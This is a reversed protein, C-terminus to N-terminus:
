HAHPMHAAGEDPSMGSIIIKRYSAQGFQSFNLVFHALDRRGSIEYVPHSRDTNIPRWATGSELEVIVLDADGSVEDLEMEIQLKHMDQPVFFLIHTIATITRSASYVRTDPFVGRVFYYDNEGSTITFNGHSDPYIPAHVIEYLRVCVGQFCKIELLRRVSLAKKIDTEYAPSLDPLVGLFRTDNDFYWIRHIFNNKLVEEHSGMSFPGVNLMINHVANGDPKLLRSWLNYNGATFEALSDGTKEPSIKFANGQNWLYSTHFENMFYINGPIVGDCEAANSYVYEMARDMDPSRMRNLLGPVHIAYVLMLLLCIASRSIDARSSLAYGLRDCAFFLPYLFFFGMMQLHRYSMPFGHFQKYNMLTTAVLLAASALGFVVILFGQRGRACLGASGATFLACSVAATAPNESVFSLFLNPIAKICFLIYGAAGGHFVYYVHMRATSPVSISEIENRFTLVHTFNFLGSGLAAIFVAGFALAAYSGHKLIHKRQLAAAAFYVGLGVSTLIHFFPLLFVCAMMAAAHRKRGFECFATHSYVLLIFLLAIITYPSIRFASYVTMPSVLFAIIAFLASAPPMNKQLIKFAPPVCAILAAMNLLIYAERAGGAFERFLWSIILYGPRHINSLYVKNALFSNFGHFEGEYFYSFDMYEYSISNRLLFLFVSFLIAFILAATGQRPWSASKTSDPVTPFKIAYLIAVSAALLGMCILFLLSSQKLFLEGRESASFLEYLYTQNDLFYHVKDYM